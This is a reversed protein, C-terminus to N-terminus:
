AAEGYIAVFQPSLADIETPPSQRLVNYPTIGRLFVQHSMRSYEGDYRGIFAHLCEPRPCQFVVEVVTLGIEHKERVVGGLFRPDIFHHCLPCESPPRDCSFDDNAFTYKIM